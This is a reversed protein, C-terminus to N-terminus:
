GSKKLNTAKRRELYFSVKLSSFYHLALTRACVNCTDIGKNEACSDLNWVPATNNGHLNHPPFEGDRGQVSQGRSGGQDQM